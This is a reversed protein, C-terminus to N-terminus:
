TTVAYCVTESIGNGYHRLYFKYEPVISKLYLPIEVIDLPNHYICIALKPKYTKITNEAGKLAELEAGEIDMKIFTVPKGNLYEDISTVPIEINGDKNVGSSGDNRANFRLVDKKNWLGYSILTINTIDSFNELFEKHKSEEPEFSYIKKFNGKTHKLFEEVTDGTYAGGDIFIEDKLFSIIPSEFYQASTSRLPILYKSNLTICYNIRQCFIEKSCNDSLISYTEKFKSFHKQVINFYNKYNKYNFIDSALIDKALKNSLNHPLNNHLNSEKLQLLIADYYAISTIIILSNHHKTKLDHLSIVPVGEIFTGWKRPNNDCFFIKNSTIERLFKLYSTGMFGAGFLVIAKNDKKLLNSYINKLLPLPSKEKTVMKLSFEDVM